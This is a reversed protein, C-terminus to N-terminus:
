EEAIEVEEEEVTKKIEPIGAVIQGEIGCENNGRRIRFFGKNGWDENWSNAVEWYPTGNEVGWGVIKIAHGGLAGGTTHHYVGSKYTPFDSYVTFAAEVPGNTMIETQIKAVNNAVGYVSDAHWKDESYSNSKYQSDCEKKCKPTPQSKGCPQYKGETHHDCPAFTYAQCYNHTGHLWGTVIGTRKFYNWAGSPYGGNCGNGCSFGCCTLLDESSIRTQLTQGSKICIRDSMAEVAGFAWCSGCTSQDRVEKISECKPWHEASSFEEPIDELPEIDKLPLRLNEPTELITGMLSKVETLTMGDFKHNHGAVWSNQVNNVHDAIPM